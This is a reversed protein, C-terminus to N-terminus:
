HCLAHCCHHLKKMYSASSFDQSSTAMALLLGQGSRNVSCQSHWARAGSKIKM